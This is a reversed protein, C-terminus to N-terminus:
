KIYKFIQEVRHVYTHKSIVEKHGKYAIDERETDHHLYYDIKELLDQENDYLVLHKGDEFIDELGSEIPLRNTILLSGCSMAEFVRMNLDNYISYNFVIKAQSYIKAMEEGYVNTFIKLEFNEAILQLLKIRKSSYSPNVNGVFVIDYKKGYKFNKNIESDCAVPLWIFNTGIDMIYNKHCYFKYDFDKQIYKLFKRKSNDHDIGWIVSPIKEKRFNIIHYQGAGDIEIFLDFSCRFKKNTLTEISTPIGKPIYFHLIDYMNTWFPTLNLDYFYVRHGLDRIAKEVYEGVTWPHLKRYVVLVNM